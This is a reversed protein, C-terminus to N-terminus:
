RIRRWSDGGDQDREVDRILMPNQEHSIELVITDVGEITEISTTWSDEFDDIKKTINKRARPNMMRDWRSLLGVTIITAQESEV